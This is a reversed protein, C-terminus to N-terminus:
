KKVTNPKIKSSLIIDRFSTASLSARGILFGDVVGEKLLSEANTVDVSGGYIIRISYAKNKGYMDVLVKRIYISMEHLEKPLVGRLAGKGIAWIPEYAITINKLFKLPISQLGALLQEKLFELYHGEDDRAAEGICLIVSLGSNLALLM